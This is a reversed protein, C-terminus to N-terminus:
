PQPKPNSRHRDACIMSLETDTGTGGHGPAAPAPGKWIGGSGAAAGAVEAAPRGSAAMPAKPSEEEPSVDAQTYGKDGSRLLAKCALRTSGAAPPVFCHRTWHSAPPPAPNVSLVDCPMCLRSCSRSLKQSRRNSGVGRHALNAGGCARARRRVQVLQNRGVLLPVQPPVRLQRRRRLRRRAEHWYARVVQQGVVLHSGSTGRGACLRAWAEAGRYGSYM